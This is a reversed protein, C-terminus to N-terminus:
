SKKSMMYKYTYLLAKGLFIGPILGYASTKQNYLLVILVCALTFFIIQSIRSELISASDHDIEITNFSTIAAGILAGLAMMQLYIQVENHPVTFVTPIIILFTFTYFTLLHISRYSKRKDFKLYWDSVQKLQKFFFNNM